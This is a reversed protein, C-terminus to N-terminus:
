GCCKKYKKGSGCSCPDNRGPKKVEKASVVSCGGKFHDFEHLFVRAEFGTLTREGKLEDKIKVWEPRMILTEPYEPFSLCTENQGIRTTSEDIIEPNVYAEKIEKKDFDTFKICIVQELIGIQNASLGICDPTTELAKWLLDMTKEPDKSPQSPKMLLERDTIIQITDSKTAM